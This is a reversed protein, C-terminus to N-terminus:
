CRIYQYEMYEYGTWESIGSIVTEEDLYYGKKDPVTKSFKKSMIIKKIPKPKILNRSAYWRKGVVEGETKETRDSYKLFYEAIKRYQGGSRLPDVHVGGYKWTNLLDLDIKSCLLHMHRSGHPGIEKVYIYKFKFKSNMRKIRKQVQQIFAHIAKQMDESKIEPMKYFDLRVLYDGDQFNANMLHRLDREARRRNYKKIREPTPGDPPKRTMNTPHVIFTYYKRKELVKGTRWTEQIYPM